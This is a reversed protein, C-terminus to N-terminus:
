RTRLHHEEFEGYATFMAILADVFTQWAPVDNDYNYLWWDAPQGHLHKSLTYVRYYDDVVRRIHRAYEFDYNLKALLKRAKANARPENGYFTFSVSDLNRYARANPANVEGFNADGEM